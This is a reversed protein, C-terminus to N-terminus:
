GWIMRSCVYVDGVWVVPGPNSERRRWWRFSDAGKDSRGQIPDSDSGPGNEHGPKSGASGASGTSGTSGGSGSRRGRRPQLLGVVGVKSQARYYPRGIDPKVPVMRVEGLVGRLALASNRVDGVLVERFNRLRDEVWARPPPRFQRTKQATLTQVEDELVAVRRESQEMARSVADTGRGQAVFEVFNDLRRQESELERQRTILDKSDGKEAKKLEVQVERLVKLVADPTAVLEQVVGVILQEAVSRRVRVRNSCAKKAARGCGVYGGHRGSVQQLPAGCVDCVMTGALLTTPYDKASGRQTKTFGREGRERRYNERVQSRRQRVREWVDQPVIRLDPRELVIWESSPRPVSRRRGSRPDKKTRTKNWVWRGLYKENELMRSITGPSWGGTKKYTGPVGEENLTGVIRNIAVGSAYMQFVREVVAAQRPEIEMEYGEPRPRGHKDIITEGAPISRYGYTKEGVFFGRAKQGLQSQKTKKTVDRIFLENVIGRFQITLRSEEDDTDVRDAVSILRVGAMELDALVTLMLLNNRALRSLDAVVLTKFAGEEAAERLALLGERTVLAGSKAEDRFVFEEPVHLGEQEAYRLCTAIQDKISTERQNTTSYRAYVAAKKM